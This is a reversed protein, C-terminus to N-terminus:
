YGLAEIIKDVQKQKDRAVDVYLLTNDVRSLVLYKEKSKKSFKTYNGVEIKTTTGTEEDFAERNKNYMSKASEKSDLVYFEIQWGETNVAVIANEITEFESFQSVKVDATILDNEEAIKTFEEATLAKKNFSCGTVVLLSLAILLFLGLKKRM